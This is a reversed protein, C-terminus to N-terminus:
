EYKPNEQVNFFDANVIKKADREMSTMYDATKGNAQALQELDGPFTAEIYREPSVDEGMVIETMVEYKETPALGLEISFTPDINLKFWGPLDMTSVRSIAHPPIKGKHSMTGMTNMSDGWAARYDDINNQVQETRDQMALDGNFGDHPNLGFRNTAQEIYDEDPYLNTPRLRSLDVEILAVDEDSGTASIGFAIGHQRTLYVHDQISEVDGDAWNSKGTAERPLLGNELISEVNEASTGHYAFRLNDQM